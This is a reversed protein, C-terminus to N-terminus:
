MSHAATTSRPRARRIWGADAMLLLGTLLYVVQFGSFLRLVFLEGIIWGVTALGAFFSPVEAGEERNFALMAAVMNTVGVMAFLVLGPVLFDNFPTGSLMSLPARLVSGDPWIALAGGGAMASIANFSHVTTLFRWRPDNRSIM